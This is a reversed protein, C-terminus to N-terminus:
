FRVQLLVLVADDDAGFWQEDRRWEVRAGIGSAHAAGIAAASRAVDGDEREAEVFPRTGAVAFPASWRAGVRAHWRRDEGFSSDLLAGFRLRLDLTGWRGSLAPAGGVRDWGESDGGVEVVNLSTVDVPNADTWTHNSRHYFWGGVLLPGWRRQVGVHYLWYLEDVDDGTVVNPDMTVTAHWGGILDPTDFWLVLRAAGDREGAGTAIAGGAEFASWWSGGPGGRRGGSSVIDLGVIAGDVRLGFPNRGRLGHVFLDYHISEGSVGPWARGFRLGGRLDADFAGGDGFRGIGDLALDFGVEWGGDGWPRRHHVEARLVADADVGDDDFVAGVTAAGQWHAGWTRIEAGLWRVHPSGPVDVNARGDQGVAFGWAGDEARRLAGAAVQYNMERVRFTFDSEAKSIATETDLRAFASWDRTALHRLEVALDGVLDLDDDLVWALSGRVEVADLPEPGHVPRVEDREVPEDDAGAALAPASLLALAVVIAAGRRIM